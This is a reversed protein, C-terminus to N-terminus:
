VVVPTTATAGSRVLEPLDDLRIEEGRSLLVAREIVNRLERINGPWHYAALAQLADEAIGRVEPRVRAASERRFKQALRAVVGGRDRLPPLSITAVKGWTGSSTRVPGAQDVSERPANCTAILRGQFAHPKAGGTPRFTRKAAARLLRRELRPSLCDVEDVLLTGQGAAALKGAHDDAAGPFAGRVHGFLAGELLSESLAACHVVLFPEDRRPSLEHLVRALQLKGTGPEGILLLPTDLSAILRFQVRWEALEVPL